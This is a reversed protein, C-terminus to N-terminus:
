WKLCIHGRRFVMLYQSFSLNGPYLGVQTLDSFLFRLDSLLDLLSTLIQSQTEKCRGM